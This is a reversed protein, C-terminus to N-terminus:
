EYTCVNNPCNRGGAWMGEREGRGVWRGPLVMEARKELTTSSCVYTIILFLM